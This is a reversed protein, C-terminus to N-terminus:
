ALLHGIAGTDSRWWVPDLPAGVADIPAIAVTGGVARRGGALHAVLRRARPATTIIVLRPKAGIGPVTTRYRRTRWWDNYAELKRFLTAFSETGRDLEVALVGHRGAVQWHAIGDPVPKVSRPDARLEPEGTWELAGHETRLALELAVRFGAVALAHRPAKRRGRHSKTSLGVLAGGNRTLHYAYPGAGRGGVVIEPTLYGLEVLKRLRAGVTQRAAFGSGRRFFLLRIHDGALYNHTAVARLIREDRPTPWIRNKSRSSKRTM